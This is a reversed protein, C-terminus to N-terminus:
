LPQPHLRPGGGLLLLARGGQGDDEHEDDDDDRDRDRDDDDDDDDDKPLLGFLLLPQTQAQLTTM